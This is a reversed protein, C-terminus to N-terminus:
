GGLLELGRRMLAPPSDALREQYPDHHRGERHRRLNHAVIAGLKFCAFARFWAIGEPGAGTAARYRAVVEDASPTGPAARGLGPFNAPETYLTLWGLDGRRDGISWIEWDVLAVVDGGGPRQMVNGLRFDGHVLAPATPAPPDARLAELLALAERDEGLGAAHLTATWRELDETPAVVPENAMGLEAPTPQQLRALLDVTGEWASAVAAATEDPRPDEMVPEAAFGDILEMGFLPIPEAAEFLLEPVPVRGVRGLAGLVRAQRLVDHRGVPKRGPPTSKVVVRRQGRDHDVTAVHTLGSHGGPLVELGAVHAGPFREAAADAVAAALATLEDDATDAM